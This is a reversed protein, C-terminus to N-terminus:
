SKHSRGPTRGVVRGGCAGCDHASEHPNNMSTSGHGVILVLRAFGDTLGIERLVKEAINTMEELTFGQHGDEPGPDPETRELRLRTVPTQVFRGLRTRVRATLRPFLTRAVLPISAFVGSVAMLITGVGISRSETHLRHSAMGLVRRTRARRRHEGELPRLVEEVVYHRPLMVAPCLPVYHADAAGRYYMPISFFGATGFTEADPSIEEVHRRMSEEREDICFVAQFRSVRPTAAPTELHLAIADLSQTYFRQEYAEHFIRRRELGSFDEIEQLLTSWQTHSLDCLVGPTTGFVQALQFVLFARQEISPPWHPDIRDKLLGWFERVSACIGLVTRAVHELALRDLILRIALFEVLSGERIPRVVRDGRSEIQHIMGAWGRLALLTHSLFPEWDAPAVGLGDLSDRISALPEDRGDALRSLAGALDARWREPSGGPRGYLACFARIFGEDRHPLQWRAVGQDLFAACFPILLAHVLADTDQGTAELLMDRHRATPHPQASFQPLDRVGDCCVRWLAQLTFGEWDDDTWSEIRRGGFRELLEM